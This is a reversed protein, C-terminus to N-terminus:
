AVGGHHRDGLRQHQAAPRGLQGSQRQCRDPDPQDADRRLADRDGPGPRQHHRQQPQQCLRLSQRGRHHDGGVMLDSGPGFSLAKLKKKSAVRLIALDYRSLETHVRAELTTKDALTAVIRSANGIIHHNTILFGREDVIVGTGVITRKGNEGPRTVKLTVVGDRSRAVAEVIATRREHEGRAQGALVFLGTTLLLAMGMLGKHM